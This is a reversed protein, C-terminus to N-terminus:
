QYITKLQINLHFEISNRALPGFFCLFFKINNYCNLILQPCLCKILFFFFFRSSEQAGLFKTTHKTHYGLFKETIKNHIMPIFLRYGFVIVWKQSGSVCKHEPHWQILNCWKLQRLSFLFTCWLCNFPVQESFALQNWKFDWSSKEVTQICFITFLNLWLLHYSLVPM